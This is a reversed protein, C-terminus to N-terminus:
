ARKRMMARMEDLRAAGFIHALVAFVVLGLVVLIAVVSLAKWLGLGSSWLWDQALFLVGAMGIGAAVIRPGRTKLRTDIGFYGRRALLVALLGVNCWAAIATSLAMGVHRLEGVLAFNLAINIAMVIAAVKVPTATDERAFFSPTLVKVLVYAPLGVAFAMLAHSTEVSAVADFSGRQFLVTIVPLALVM